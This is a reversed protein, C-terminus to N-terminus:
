RYWSWLNSKLKAYRWTRYLIKRIKSGSRRRGIGYSKTCTGTKDYFLVGKLIFFLYENRHIVAAKWSNTYCIQYIVCLLLRNNHWLLGNYFAFYSKSSAFRNLSDLATLIFITYFRNNKIALAYISFQLMSYSIIRLYQATAIFCNCSATRKVAICYTPPITSHIYLIFVVLEQSAVFNSKYAPVCFCPVNNALCIKIIKENVTIPRFLLSSCPLQQSHYCFM